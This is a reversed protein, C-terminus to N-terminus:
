YVGFMAEEAIHRGMDGDHAASVPRRRPFLPWHTPNPRGSQASHRHPQWSKVGLDASRYPALAVGGPFFAAGDALVRPWQAREGQTLNKRGTKFAKDWAQM